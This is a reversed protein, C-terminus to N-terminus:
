PKLSVMATGLARSLPQFTLQPFTLSHRDVVHLWFDQVRYALDGSHDTLAPEVARPGFDPLPMVEPGYLFMEALSATGEKFYKIEPNAHNAVFYAKQVAHFLEHYAYRTLQDVQQPNTYSVPDSPACLMLEHHLYSDYAVAGDSLECRTDPDNGSPDVFSARTYALFRLDNADAGFSPPELWLDGGTTELAFPLFGADRYNALAGTLSTHFFAAANTGAAPPPDREIVVFSRPWSPVDGGQLTAISASTPPEAEPSTVARRDSTRARPLAVAAASSPEVCGCPM